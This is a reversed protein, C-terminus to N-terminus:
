ILKGNADYTADGLKMVGLGDLVGDIEKGELCHAAPKLSGRLM